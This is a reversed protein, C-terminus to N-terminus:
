RGADFVGVNGDSKPALKRAEELVIMAAMARQRGSM